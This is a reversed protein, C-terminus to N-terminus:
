EKGGVTRQGSMGKGGRPGEPRNGRKRPVVLHESAQWGEGRGRKAKPRRYWGHTERENQKPPSVCRGLVEIELDEAGDKALELKAMLEHVNLLGQPGNGNRKSTSSM